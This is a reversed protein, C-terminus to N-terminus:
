SEEHLKRIFISVDVRSTCSILSWMLLLLENTFSFARDDKDM